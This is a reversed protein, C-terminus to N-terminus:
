HFSPAAISRNIKMLVTIKEATEKLSTFAPQFKSNPKTMVTLVTEKNIASMLVYGNSSKILMEELDGGHTFEQATHQSLSLMLASNMGLSNKDMNQGLVSAIVTGDASILASAEIDNSSRNLDLLQTFLAKTNM